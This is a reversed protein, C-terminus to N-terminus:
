IELASCHHLASCLEILFIFFVGEWSKITNSDGQIMNDENMAM